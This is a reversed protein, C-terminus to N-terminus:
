TEYGPHDEGTVSLKPRFHEGDFERKKARKNECFCCKRNQTKILTDRVEQTKWVAADIDKNTLSEGKAVKDRLHEKLNEVRPNSFSSLFGPRNKIQIM